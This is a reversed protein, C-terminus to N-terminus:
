EIDAIIEAMKPNKKLINYIALVRKAQPKDRWFNTDKAKKNFFKENPDTRGGYPKKGVGSYAQVGSLLDNPYNKIGEALYRAGYDIL